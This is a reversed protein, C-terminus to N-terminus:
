SEMEILNNVFDSFVNQGLLAELILLWVAMRWRYQLYFQIQFDTLEAWRAFKIVWTNWGGIFVVFLFLRWWGLYPQASKRWSLWSEFGYFYTVSVVLVTILMACITTGWMLYRFAQEGKTNVTKKPKGPKETTMSMGKKKIKESTISTADNNQQGM